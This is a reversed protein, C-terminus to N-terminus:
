QQRTIAGGPHAGFRTQLHNPNEGFRAAGRAHYASLGQIQGRDAAVELQVIELWARSLVSRQDALTNNAAAQAGIPEFHSASVSRAPCRGRMEFEPRCGRRRPCYRSRPLGDAGVARVLRGVWRARARVRWVRARSRCCRAQSRWATRRVRPWGSRAPRTQPREDLKAVQFKEMQLGLPRLDAEGVGAPEAQRIGRVAVSRAM